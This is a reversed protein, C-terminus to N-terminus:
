LGQRLTSTFKTSIRHIHNDVSLLITMDTFTVSSSVEPDQTLTDHLPTVVGVVLSQIPTYEGTTFPVMSGACAGTLYWTGQIDLPILVNM